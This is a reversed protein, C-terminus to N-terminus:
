KSEGNMGRGDQCIAEIGLRPRLVVLVFVVIVLVLVLLLNGIRPGFHGPFCLGPNVRPLERVRDQGKPALGEPQDGLSEQGKPALGEPQIVPTLFM